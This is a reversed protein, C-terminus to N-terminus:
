LLNRLNGCQTSQSEITILVVNPAVEIIRSYCISSSNLAQFASKEVNMMEQTMLEFSRKMELSRSTPLLFVEFTTNASSASM